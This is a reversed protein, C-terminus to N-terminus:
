GDADPPMVEEGVEFHQLRWEVARNLARWGEPSFAVCGTLGYREQYVVWVTPEEVQRGDPSFGRRVGVWLAQPVVETRDPAEEVFTFDSSLGGDDVLEEDPM